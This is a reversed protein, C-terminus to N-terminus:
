AAMELPLELHPWDPRPNGRRDRFTGGSVLGVEKALGLLPRYLVANWTVVPKIVDPEGSLLRIAVDVAEARPLGDKVAQHRSKQSVGDCWTVIGGRVTRGQAYLVQQAAVNRFTATLFLRRFRYRANWLDVLRLFREALLPHVLELSRSTFPAARALMFPPPAAASATM